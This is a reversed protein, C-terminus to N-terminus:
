NFISDRTEDQNIVSRTKDDYSVTIKVKCFNEKNQNIVRSEIENKNYVAVVIDGEEM